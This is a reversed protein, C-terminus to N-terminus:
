DRTQSYEIARWSKQHIANHTRRANSLEAENRLASSLVERVEDWDVGTSFQTRLAIREM